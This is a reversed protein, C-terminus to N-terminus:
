ALCASGCVACEQSCHSCATPAVGLLDLGFEQHILAHLENRLQEPNKFQIAHLGAKRAAAVNKPKDDVFIIQTADFDNRNLFDYFFDAHPKIINKKLGQATVHQSRDLDFCDTIFEFGPKQKLDALLRSGMNSATFQSVHAKRLERIIQVTGEIPRKRGNTVRLLYEKMHPNHMEAIHFYWEGLGERKKTLIHRIAVINKGTFILNNKITSDPNWLARRPPLSAKGVWDSSVRDIDWLIHPARRHSKTQVTRSYLYSSAVVVSTGLTLLWSKLKLM